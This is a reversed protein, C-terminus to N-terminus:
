YFEGNRFKDFIGNNVEFYDVCHMESYRIKVIWCFVSLIVCITITNTVGIHKPVTAGDEPPRLWKRKM